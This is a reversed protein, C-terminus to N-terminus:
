RPVRALAIYGYVSNGGSAFCTRQWQNVLTGNAAQMKKNVRKRLIGQMNILNFSVDFENISNSFLEYSFPVPEVFYELTLDSFFWYVDGSQDYDFAISGIAQLINLRHARARLWLNVADVGANQFYQKQTARAQVLHNNSGAFASSVMPQGVPANQRPMLKPNVVTNGQPVPPVGPNFSPLAVPKGCRTCFHANNALQQGCKTCYM